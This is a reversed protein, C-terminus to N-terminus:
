PDEPGGSQGHDVQGSGPKGPSLQEGFLGRGIDKLCRVPSDRRSLRAQGHGRVSLGDEELVGGLPLLLVAPAFSGLWKGMLTPKHTRKQVTM